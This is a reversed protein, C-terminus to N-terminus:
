SQMLESNEYFGINKADFFYFSKEKLFCHKVNIFLWRKKTVIEIIITTGRSFFPCLCRKVGFVYKRPM